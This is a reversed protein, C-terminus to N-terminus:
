LGASNKCKEWTDDEGFKSTAYPFCDDQFVIKLVTDLQTKCPRDICTRRLFYAFDRVFTRLSKGQGVTTGPKKMLELAKIMAARVPALSDITRQPTDVVKPYISTELAAQNKIFVQLLKRLQDRPIWLLPIDADAAAERDQETWFESPKKLYNPYERDEAYRQMLREFAYWISLQDKMFSFPSRLGVAAWSQSPKIGDENAKDADCGTTKKYQIQDTKTNGFNALRPDNPIKLFQNMVITIDKIHGVNGIFDDRKENLEKLAAHEAVGGDKEIPIGIGNAYPELAGPHCGYGSTNPALYDSDFPCAKDYAPNDSATFDDGVEFCVDEDLCEDLTPHFNGLVDSCSVVDRVNCSPANAAFECCWGTFSDDFFYWGQWGPDSYGPDTAGRGLNELRDALFGVLSRLRLVGGPSKNKQAANLECRAKEIEAELIAVDIHMCATMRQLDASHQVAQVKTDILSMIASSVAGIWDALMMGFMTDGGSEQKARTIGGEARAIVDKVYQGIPTQQLLAKAYPSEPCDAFARPVLLIFLGIGALFRRM